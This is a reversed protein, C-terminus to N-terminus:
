EHNGKILNSIFDFILAILLLIFYLGYAFAFLLIPWLFIILLIYGIDSM